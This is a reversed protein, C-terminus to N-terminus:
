SGVQVVARTDAARIVAEAVVLARLGEDLSVTRAEGDGRVMALFDDIEVALPEPKAIAYRVVDGESVGRFGSITDWEQRVSGNAFFSLDATLTDAVFAGREGTVVLHREKIPSLWNVVHNTVTGDALWGVAAVLDEHPRGARHATHASVAAYPSNAIWATLDIDHTALDKVVGVDRIRGPFPGQRSTAIQYIAGLDGVELRERLSRMAPNCREVHGVGAVVGAAAFAAALVEGEAVSAALPKEILAPIGAEALTLGIELHDETPVAVVCCDIGLAVAAAVDSLVTIGRARGHPDGAPDVAAVLNVDDRSRLLRVHHRGMMGLGVVAARTRVGM